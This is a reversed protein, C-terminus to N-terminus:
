NSLATTNKGDFDRVYEETNERAVYKELNLETIYKWTHEVVTKQRVIKLWPCYIIKREWTNRGIDIAILQIYYKNQM